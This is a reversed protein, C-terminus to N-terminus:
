SRTPDALPYAAVSLEIAEGVAIDAGPAVNTLNLDGGTSFYGWTGRGANQMTAPVGVYPAWHAAAANLAVLPFNGIVGAAPVVFASGARLCRVYISAMGNGLNTLTLADKTWNAAATILALDTIVPGPAGGAPKWIGASGTGGNAVWQRNRDEDFARFGKPVTGGVAEWAARLGDVTAFDAGMATEAQRWANNYGFVFHCRLPAVYCLDGTVVSDAIQRFESNRTVPGWHRPPRTSVREDIVGTLPAGSNAPVIFEYLPLDWVGDEVQTLPPPAPNAAPNGQLVLPRVTQAALDRRLVLRDMRPQAATNPPVDYSWATGTREYGAGRVHARGLGMSVTLGAVTLALDGAAPSPFQSGFVGSQARAYADRFWGGQMWTATDFPGFVDPM